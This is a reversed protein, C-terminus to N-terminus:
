KIRKYFIHYIKFLCLLIAICLAIKVERFVGFLDLIENFVNYSFMLIFPLLVFAVGKEADRKNHENIKNKLENIKTELLKYKKDDLNQAKSYRSNNM